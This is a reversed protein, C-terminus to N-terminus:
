LFELDLDLFEFEGLDFDTFLALLDGLVEEEFSPGPPCFGAPLLPGKARAAYLRGSPIFSKSTGAPVPDRFKEFFM